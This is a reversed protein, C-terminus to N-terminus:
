TMPIFLFNIIHTHKVFTWASSTFSIIFGAFFLINNNVNDKLLIWAVGFFYPYNKGANHYNFWYVWFGKVLNFITNQGQKCLILAMQWQFCGFFYPEQNFHHPTM